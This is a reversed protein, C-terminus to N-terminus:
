PPQPTRDAPSRRRLPAPTHVHATTPIRISTRHSARPALTSIARRCPWVGVHSHHASDPDIPSTLPPAMSYKGLLPSNAPGHPPTPFCHMLPRIGAASRRHFHSGALQLRQGARICIAVQAQCHKVAGHRTRCTKISSRLQQRLPFRLDEKLDLLVVDVGSISRIPAPRRATCTCMGM